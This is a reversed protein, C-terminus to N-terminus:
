QVEPCSKSQAPTCRLQAFSKLSKKFGEKFQFSGFSFLLQTKTVSSASALSVCTPVLLHLTLLLNMQSTHSVFKEYNSNGIKLTCNHPPLRPKLGSGLQPCDDILAFFNMLQLFALKELVFFLFLEFIKYNEFIFDCLQIRQLHRLKGV